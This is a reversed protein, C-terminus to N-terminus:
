VQLKQYFRFCGWEEFSYVRRVKGVNNSYNSLPHSIILETGEEKINPKKESDDKRRKRRRRKRPNRAPIRRQERVAKELKYALWNSSDLPM